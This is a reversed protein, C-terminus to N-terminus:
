LQALKQLLALSEMHPTHPFFDFPRIFKIEYNISLDKLNECLSQPNCSSYVIKKPNLRLIARQIKKSLGSRPPNLVLLDIDQYFSKQENLFKRADQALFSINKLNNTRATEWAANVIEEKLEVGWVFKAKEALFTGITGLGCFLDLVRENGTLNVCDVIHKYLDGVGTPNIQFFSDIALKFKFGSLNEEIFEEGYLVEKSEFVVADSWSDNKVWSISKIETSLKLETLAKVFGDKDLQEKSTTVIALMLQKTLKAERLIFNRLFGQHSYKDYALYKKEKVFAKVAKLIAPCDQSSILCEELDFVSHKRVKSHLGLCLNDKDQFFTFEMKNRYYWQPYSRIPLLNIELDHQQLLDQLRKEKNRLQEQYPIDQFKCGGCESFHKCVM